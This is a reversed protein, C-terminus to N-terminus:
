GFVDSESPRPAPQEGDIERAKAMAAQEFKDIATALEEASMEHPDKPQGDVGTPWVKDTVYKAANFRANAPTKPNRLLDKLTDLALGILETHMTHKTMDRALQVVSERNQLKLAMRDPHKYGADIAARVPHGHRALAKAWDREQPTIKDGRRPM